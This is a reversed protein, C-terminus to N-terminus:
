DSLEYHFVGEDLWCDVAGRQELVDLHGVAESMGGFQQTAPLNGFLDNMVDVPTTSGDLVGKVEETRREHEDRITEIRGGPDTIPPGHGPLLEDYSETRLRDLSRNFAPLVRPRDAGETEPPRLFPNPTITGLVHDGVFARKGDAGFRFIREGAAHGDVAEATLTTGEVTVTTGDELMVDTEVDPAFDLFSEPLSIITEATEPDLGCKRFLPGFFAQETELRGRFDGIISAADPSACVTAGRDRLRAALGFHDPHPHTILVREVNDPDLGATALGDTLTEWASDSDPGPDVVTRGAVYANVQGTAFPVPVSIRSFM